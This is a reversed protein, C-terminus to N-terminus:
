SDIFARPGFRTIYEEIVPPFEPNECALCIKKPKPEDKKLIKVGTKNTVLPNRFDSYLKKLNLDKLENDLLDSVFSFERAKYTETKLL